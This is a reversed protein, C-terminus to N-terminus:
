RSYAKRPSLDGAPPVLHVQSRMALMMERMSPIRVQESPYIAKNCSLIVPAKVRFTESFADTQRSVELWQPDDAYPRFDCVGEVLAIGSLQSLWRPFDGSAYDWGAEGCLVVPQPRDKLFAAVEAAAVYADRPCDNIRFIQPAGMAAAYRLAWEQTQPCVSVVRVQSSVSLAKMLVQKDLPSISLADGDVCVADQAADVRVRSYVDSAIHVAVWLEVQTDM